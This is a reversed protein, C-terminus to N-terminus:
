KMEFVQLLIGIIDPADQANTKVPSTTFKIFCTVNGLHDTLTRNQSKTRGVCPNIVFNSRLMRMEMAPVDRPRIYFGDM